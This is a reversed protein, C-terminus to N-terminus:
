KSKSIGCGACSVDQFFDICLDDMSNCSGHSGSLCAHMTTASRGLCEMERDSSSWRM